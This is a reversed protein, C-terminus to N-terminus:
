EEELIRSFNTTIYKQYKSQIYPEGEIRGDFRIQRVGERKRMREGGSLTNFERSSLVIMADFRAIFFVFWFYSRPKEFRIDPFFGPCKTGKSRAKIQVEAFKGDPRKVVMDVGHNDMVPLYVDLGERLMLSIIHHEVYKGFRSSVNVPIMKEGQMILLPKALCGPQNGSLDQLISQM